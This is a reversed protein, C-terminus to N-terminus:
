ERGLFTADPLRTASFAAPCLMMVWVLMLRKMIMTGRGYSVGASVISGDMLRLVQTQQERTERKGEVFAKWLVYAM